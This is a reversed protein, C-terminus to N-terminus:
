LSYLLERVNTDRRRNNAQRSLPPLVSVKELLERISDCATKQRISRVQSRVTCVQVGHRLAIENPRLGRCLQLLM